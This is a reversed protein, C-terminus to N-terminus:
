VSSGMFRILNIDVTLYTQIFSVNPLMQSNKVESQYQKATFNPVNRLLRKVAWLEPSDMRRTQVKELFVIGMSGKGIEYNFKWPPSGMVPAGHAEVALDVVADALPELRPAAREIESLRSYLDRGISYEPGSAKNTIWTKNLCDEASPRDEPEPQLVDGLFSVCSVSFGANEVEPPLSSAAFVYKYLRRRTPFLSSGAFMRYLVCGLSWIDVRNTKVIEIDDMEPAM